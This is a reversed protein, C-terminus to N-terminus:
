AAQVIKTAWDPISGPGEATFTCPGLWKVALSNGGWHKRTKWRGQRRETGGSPPTCLVLVPGPDSSPGAQKIGLSTILPDKEWMFRGKNGERKVKFIIWIHPLFVPFYLSFIVDNYGQLECALAPQKKIPKQLSKRDFIHQCLYSWM